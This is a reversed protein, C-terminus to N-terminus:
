KSKGLYTVLREYRAQRDEAGNQGGNIYQTTAKFNGQDVKENLGYRAWFWGAAELACEETALLEPNNLLDVGIARGTDIYNTKGTTMLAGRGRYRWGDGSAEDGNGMRKAYCNNAIAEPNRAIRKALANPKKDPGRYRSPWTSALGEASYNLNEVLRTMDASEHGVQALFAAVRHTTNIKHDELTINLAECVSPDVKPFIHAFQEETLMM